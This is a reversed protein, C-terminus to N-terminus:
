VKLSGKIEQCHPNWLPLALLFLIGPELDIRVQNITTKKKKKKKKKEEEEKRFIDRIKRKKM